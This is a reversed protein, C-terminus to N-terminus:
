IVNREPGHNEAIKKIIEAAQEYEVNERNRTKDQM